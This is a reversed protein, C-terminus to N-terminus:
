SYPQYHNRMHRVVNSKDKNCIGLVPKVPFSVITGMVRQVINGNQMIADALVRKISPFKKAAQAAVGRGMVALGNATVFGNTGIAIMKGQKHKDWINCIEFRM